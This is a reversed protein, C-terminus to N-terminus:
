QITLFRGNGFPMELACPQDGCFSKNYNFIRRSQSPENAFVVAINKYFVYKNNNKIFSDFHDALAKAAKEYINVMESNGKAELKGTADNILKDLTGKCIALIDADCKRQLTSSDYAVPISLYLNPVNFVLTDEEATYKLEGLKIHYKFSAVMSIEADVHAITIGLVKKKWTENFTEASKLEAIVYEDAGKLSIFQSISSSFRQTDILHPLHPLRSFDFIMIQYVVFAVILTKILTTIAKLALRM